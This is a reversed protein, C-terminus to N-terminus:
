SCLTSQFCVVNELQQSFNKMMDFLIRVGLIGNEETDKDIVSLM